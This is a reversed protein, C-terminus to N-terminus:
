RYRRSKSTIPHVYRGSPHKSRCSSTKCTGTAFGIAKRYSGATGVTTAALLLAAALALTRM